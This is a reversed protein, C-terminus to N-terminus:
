ASAALHFHKSTRILRTLNYLPCFNGVEEMDPICTSYEPKERYYKNFRKKKSPLGESDLKLKARKGGKLPLADILRYEAQTEAKKKSKDIVVLSSVSDAVAPYYVEPEKMFVSQRLFHELSKTTSFRRLQKNYRVNRKSKKKKSDDKFPVLLASTLSAGLRQLETPEYGIATRLADNEIWCEDCFGRATLKCNPCQGDSGTLALRAQLYNKRLSLLPEEAASPYDLRKEGAQVQNAWDIWKRLVKSVYTNSFLYALPPPAGTPNDQTPVPDVADAITTSDEFAIFRSELLTMDGEHPCYGEASSKNRKHGNISFPCWCGDGSDIVLNKMMSAPTTGFEKVFEKDQRYMEKTARRKEEQPSSRMKKLLRSKNTASLGAEHMRVALSRKFDHFNRTMYNHLGPSVMLFDGELVGSAPDQMQDDPGAPDLGVHGQLFDDRIHSPSVHFDQFTNDGGFSTGSPYDGIIPSNPPQRVDNASGYQKPNTERPDEIDSDIDINRWGYTRNPRLISKPNSKPIADTFAGPQSTPPFVDDYSPVRPGRPINTSGFRQGAKEQEKAIRIRRTEAIRKEAEERAKAIKRLEDMKQQNRSRGFVLGYAEYAKDTGMKLLDYIKGYRNTSTSMKVTKKFWKLFFVLSLLRAYHHILHSRISSYFAALKFFM